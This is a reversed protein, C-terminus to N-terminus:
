GHPAGYGVAVGLALVVIILFWLFWDGPDKENPDAYPDPRM